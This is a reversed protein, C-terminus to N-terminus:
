AWLCQHITLDFEEPQEEFTSVWADSSSTTKRFAWRFVSFFRPVWELGAYRDHSAPGQVERVYKEMLKEADLGRRKLVTYVAVRPLITSQMLARRSPSTEQSSALFSAAQEQSEAMVATGEKEGLVRLFFRDLMEWTAKEKKQVSMPGGKNAPLRDDFQAARSLIYQELIDVTGPIDLRASNIVLDYCKADGWDGKCHQDHYIRRQRDQHKIFDM